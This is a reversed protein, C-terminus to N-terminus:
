LNSPSFDLYKLTHLVLSIYVPYVLAFTLRKCSFAYLLSKGRLAYLYEGPVHIIRSEDSLLYSNGGDNSDFAVFYLCHTRILIWVTCKCLGCDSNINPKRHFQIERRKTCKVKKVFIMFLFWKGNVCLGVSGVCLYVAQGPWSDSEPSDLIKLHSHYFYVDVYVYIYDLAASKPVYIHKGVGTLAILHICNGQAKDVAFSIQQNTVTLTIAWGAYNLGHLIYQEADVLPTPRIRLLGPLIRIGAYGYIMSQLLGGIGTIKIQPTLPVNKIYSYTCIARVYGGLSTFRASVSLCKICHM